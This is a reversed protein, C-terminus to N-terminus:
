WLWGRRRVIEPEGVHRQQELINNMSVRVADELSVMRKEMEMIKNAQHERAKKAKEEKVREKEKSKDYEWIVVGGAVGFIFGKPNYPHISSHIYSFSHDL